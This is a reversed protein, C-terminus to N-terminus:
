IPKNYEEILKPIVNIQGYAQKGEKYAPISNFDIGLEKSQKVLKELEGGLVDSSIKANEKYSNIQKRLDVIRKEATTFEAELKDVDSVIKNAKISYDIITQVTSLNVEHKGLKVENANADMQSIMKLINNMKKM